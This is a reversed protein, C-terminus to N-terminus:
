PFVLHVNLPLLPSHTLPVFQFITCKAYLGGGGPCVVMLSVMNHHAVNIALCM